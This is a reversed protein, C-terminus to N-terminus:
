SFFHNLAKAVGDHNNTDTVYNAAAKIEDPANGMAVGMGAFEIMGKDNYNDGIAIIEAQQLNYQHILFQIAKQKSAQLSMVELYRPQSKYINLEQGHSALLKEELSLIVHPDGAILIKNPGTQQQQWFHVTDAFPQITIPVETIKQEKKVADTDKQAFWDMQSYYMASVPEKDLERHVASTEPISIHAQYTVNNQQFIYGGNLSVIPNDEEFINKTIPLMGHLPRASIPVVLIGQGTLRQITEKTVSSVTHDKRLLTGDMDIFVAKYIM